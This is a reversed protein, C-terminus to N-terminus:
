HARRAATAAALQRLRRFEHQRAEVYRGNEIHKYRHLELPQIRLSHFTKCRSLAVFTLGSTFERQGLDVTACELTMGQSKHITIAWALTLPMGNSNAARIQTIPVVTLHLPMLAPGHYLPFDVMIIRCRRTDTPKLIHVVSGCSGNVLGAETWLNVTLMVEAGVAYLQPGTHGLSDEDLVDAHYEHLDDDSKEIRMVPGLTALRKNNFDDRTRNTSVVHKANDFADNEAPSLNSPRRTQLWAWDANCADCNAVRALVARFRTQTDDNGTQRFPQDLEVVTNFLHFHSAPRDNTPTFAYVPQGRVPALQAPDGCLVINMQGFHHDANAPFIKRLQRDLTDFMSTSLFSYEDIILLRVFQLNTQLCHLRAGSLNDNMLSLLSHVTSGQINAAAIGTPATVRLADSRDHLAFLHRIANILYSKGTGATGVIVMLLQAQQTPGFVHESVIQMAALQQTSLTAFSVPTAPSSLPPTMDKTHPLWSLLHDFSFGLCSDGWHHALDLERYGLMVTSHLSVNSRHMIQQYDDQRLIDEMGAPRPSALHAHPDDCDSDAAADENAANNQPHSGPFGGHALHARFNDKM